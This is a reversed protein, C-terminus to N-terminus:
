SARGQKIKGCATSVTKRWQWQKRDTGRTGGIISHHHATLQLTLTYVPHQEARLALSAPPTKRANKRLGMATRRLQNHGTNGGLEGAEGVTQSFLHVFLESPDFESQTLNIVITRLRVARLLAVHYTRAVALRLRSDAFEEDEKVLSIACLNDDGVRLLTPDTHYQQMGVGAAMMTDTLWQAHQLEPPTNIRQSITAAIAEALQEVTPLELNALPGTCIAKATLSCRFFQKFMVPPLVGQHPTAPQDELEESHEVTVQVVARGQTPDGFSDASRRAKWVERVEPHRAHHGNLEPWEIDGPTERQAAEMDANYAHMKDFRVELGVSAKISTRFAPLAPWVHEPLGELYGNDANFRAAGDAVDTEKMIDVMARETARREADGRDGYERAATTTPTAGDRRHAALRGAGTLM